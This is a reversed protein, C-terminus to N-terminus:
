NTGVVPEDIKEDVFSFVLRNQETLIEVGPVSGILKSLTPFGYDYPRFEPNEIRIKKGIVDLPYKNPAIEEGDIAKQLMDAFKAAAKSKLRSKAVEVKKKLSENNKQLKALQSELKKTGGAATRLEKKVTSLEKRLDTMAKNKEKM